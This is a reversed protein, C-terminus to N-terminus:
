PAHITTNRMAPMHAPAIVRGVARILHRLIREVALIVILIGGVATGAAM